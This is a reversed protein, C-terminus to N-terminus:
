RGYTWLVKDLLRPSWTSTTFASNLETAKRRLIGILLVGDAVKLAVPNMKAILPAEPLEEVGRLAKVLFQDVTGYKTPYMLALLGSAGAVGLGRIKCATELGTRIDETNLSLLKSRIGDLEPLKGEAAYTKLRATTTALRNPATYKWRFYENLLFNFWGVANFSRVRNLDLCDLSKELELNIPKVFTWYREVASKWMREDTSKWLESIPLM